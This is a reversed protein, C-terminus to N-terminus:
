RNGWITSDASSKEPVYTGAHPIGLVIPGSGQVVEVPQM